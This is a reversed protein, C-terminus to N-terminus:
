SPYVAVHWRCRDDISTVRIQFNGGHAMVGGGSDTWPGAGAESDPGPTGDILVENFYVNPGMGGAGYNLDNPCTAAFGLQWNNGTIFRSTGPPLTLSGCGTWDLTPDATVGAGPGAPSGLPHQGSVYPPCSALNTSGTPVPSPLAVPSPAPSPSPSPSPSPANTSAAASPSEPAQASSLSSRGCAALVLVILAAPAARGLGGM